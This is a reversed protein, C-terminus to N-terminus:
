NTESYGGRSFPRIKELYLEKLFAFTPICIIIDIPGYIRGGFIVASIAWFMTLNLKKGLIAPELIWADFQQLVALMIAVVLFSSPATYLTIISCVLIGIAPGIYVIFNTIAVFFALFFAYPIKFILFGVLAISGIILCDFSKGSIYGLFCREIKELIYYINDMQKENFIKKSIEKFLDKFYEKKQLFFLSFIIAIFFNFFSSTISLVSIIWDSGKKQILEVYTNSYDLLTKKIDFNLFGPLFGQLKDIFRSSSEQYKPINKVLEKINDSLSPVIIIFFLTILGSLFLYILLISISRKLKLRKELFRLLPNLLFAIIAGYFFISFPSFVGGIFKKISEPFGVLLFILILFSGTILIERNLKKM